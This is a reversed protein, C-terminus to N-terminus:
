VTDHKFCPDEEKSPSWKCCLASLVLAITVFGFVVALGYQGGLLRVLVEIFGSWM